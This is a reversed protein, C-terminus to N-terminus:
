YNHTSFFLNRGEWVWRLAQFVHTKKNAPGAMQGDINELCERIDSSHLHMRSFDEYLREQLPSLECLLDQTIKPPLDTLVDEKVRRM